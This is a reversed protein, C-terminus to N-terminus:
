RAAFLARRMLEGARGLLGALFGGRGAEISLNSGTDAEMRPSVYENVAWLLIGVGTAYKPDKLEDPLAGHVQPVGKRVPISMSRRMLEALGPLNSTGGTLVIRSKVSEEIPADDLKIRVLRTLEQARERTLQGIEGPQVKLDMDRGVVPLTIEEERGFPRLETGAYRLKVSEAAGYSTNFTLAIDNTFQFGGVPIVATYCVRGRSFGVLDTTGGGIDVLVAGREREGATMVALGSALPELVLSTVTIGADEVAKSLRDILSADGTVVHTDVELRETHMGVPNRIGDEGDLAYGRRVACILKRGRVEFSTSSSVLRRDRDDATIVSGTSGPELRDRRNEFAIHAGTIGVFASDIRYGTATEVERVAEGIARATAAVDSVSGKRLGDCPVTGHALIRVRQAGEKRGVIVCVKTTGVDIATVMDTPMRRLESGVAEGDITARAEMATNVDTQVTM